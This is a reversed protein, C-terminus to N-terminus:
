KSLTGNVVHGNNSASITLNNGVIGATGMTNGDADKLTAVYGTSDVTYTGSEDVDLDSIIMRWDGSDTLYITAAYSGNIEPGVFNLTGSYPTGAPGGGGDDKCGSLALAFALLAAM